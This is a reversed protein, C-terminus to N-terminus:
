DHRQQIWLEMLGRANLCLAQDSHDSCYIKYQISSYYCVSSQAWYICCMPVFGLNQTICSNLHGLRSVYHNTQFQVAFLNRFCSFMKNFRHGKLKLSSAGEWACNWEFKWHLESCWYNQWKLYKRQSQVLVSIHAKALGSPHPVTEFSSFHMGQQRGHRCHPVSFHTLGVLVLRLLPFWHHQWNKM